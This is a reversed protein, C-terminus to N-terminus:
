GKAAMAEHNLASVSDLHDWQLGTAAAAHCTKAKTLQADSHHAALEAGLELERFHYDMSARVELLEEELATNM